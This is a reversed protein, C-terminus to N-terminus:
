AEEARRCRKLIVGEGRRGDIRLELPEDLRVHRLWRTETTPTLSELWDWDVMGGESELANFYGIGYSTMNQFFHTGQSPEVKLDELDSELIVRAGSIQTWQVPVGLWRDASGWRGPGLLLYPRKQAVLQQNMRGVDSAVDVTSERRFADRRVFVIDRIGDIRGNGLAQKSRVFVLDEPVDGLPVHAGPDNMVLPRIQLFGFEKPGGGSPELNLAFEIEVPGSLGRYGMELLLQVAEAFPILQGKLLPAFTVLRVGPRSIGDHVVDDERSYTSAVPWLMGHREAAALDLRVLNGDPKLADVPRTVDLAFFERQANELVDATRSFQPLAEPHAPSFRVTRGGEVVTKGLGLAVSAAGEEPKMPGVPYFNYSNAVGSVHPYVYDGVRRGVIQQIVVAMKEEEMRNPTTKIYAKANQYFTSAYIFKVTDILQQLRVERAGSNPLMQTFYVGAFPQYHSDELLSSSRVAIPYLVRDLFAALDTVVDQPLRADLFRKTIVEDNEERLAFELLGNTELFRDFVDTGIVASPPVFIRLDDFSSEIDHRSLLEHIFALGRGKGGLSGGGIRVFESSSDFRAANFDEVLGRRTRQRFTILTQRLFDRMAEVNAFDSVNKQRLVSAASFETRAMLWNSFHNLKGHFRLSSAPVNELCRVMSLMDSARAVEVGDPLRFIFDGFGLNELMFNRFEQLLTPSRKHLFTVGLDNAQQRNSEDSSQLVMPIYPDRERITRLLEVGAEPDIRERHPFRVDSIVGLVVERFNTYLEWAEEFTTALLIKPRARMRLLKQTTNVGEHILSSTQKMIEDFLMPLYSSYFPVSDEVLIVVRVHGVRTDHEVNLADEVLKIVALFLRVDGRWVFVKDIGRLTTEKGELMGLERTDYTLLYVPMGGHMRKVKEGFEQVSLDGVRAMTIVLDFPRERLLELAREATAVRTLYAPASLSLNHFEGFIQEALRGDEALTYSDYLSAVLLVDRVHFPRLSDFGISQQDYTEVMRDLIPHSM